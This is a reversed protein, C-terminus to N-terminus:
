KKLFLESQVIENLISRIGHNRAKTAQVIRDITARDSFRVPSGTAYTALQQVFNRAIQAEDQLLLNKLDRVDKFSRGDALQGDSEVAQAYHFVFPWCNKGFGFEPTKESSVARYKDRWGGYVDFSELALGPPDIKRHCMACSEDARHKDLQQRITTAGRIDPDVAPVAAPPPPVEYGVIKEMVWKGRM